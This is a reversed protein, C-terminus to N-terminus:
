YLGKPEFLEFQVGNLSKPHIHNIEGFDGAVNKDYVPRLGSNRVRDVEARANDVELSVSMLGDGRRALFRGVISDKDPSTILVIRVNGPLMFRAISAQSEFGIGVLDDRQYSFRAMTGEAEPELLHEAKKGLLAEYNQVAKELDKVAITISHLNTIM